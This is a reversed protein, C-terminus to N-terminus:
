KKYILSLVEIQKTEDVTFVMPIEDKPIIKIKSNEGFRLGPIDKIANRVNVESRSEIYVYGPFKEISSASFIKLDVNNHIDLYLFKNILMLVSEREMNERCKVAFLKPDDDGPLYRRQHVQESIEDREGGSLEFEEEINEENDNAYRRQLDDESIKLIEPVHAKRAYLNLANKEAERRENPDLSDDDDGGDSEEDDNESAEEQVFRNAGTKRKKPGLQQM